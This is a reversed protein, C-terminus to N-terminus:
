QDTAGPELALLSGLVPLLNRLALGRHSILNKRSDDMQAYTLGTDGVEFVADYGFGNDGREQTSIIGAVSGEAIALLGDPAALAVCTAFRAGRNTTGQLESLLKLRNDRYSCGEGAYRAAFVGPAGDLADVFLGTDDAVCLMHM